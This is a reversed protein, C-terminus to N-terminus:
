PEFPLRSVPPNTEMRPTLASVLKRFEYAASDFDARSLARFKAIDENPMHYDALARMADSFVANAFAPESMMRTLITELQLM